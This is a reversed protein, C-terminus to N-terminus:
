PRCSVLRELEPTPPVGLERALVQRFADFRRRAEVINREALHVAILARTASERLPELRVAALAVEIAEGYRGVTTLRTALAELAHLRLQRLREREFLVWDDYWGPLLEGEILSRMPAQIHEIVTEDPPVLARHAASVLQAVDVGVEPCLSLVEDGTVIQYETLRHLRWLATRLCGRAHRESSEPWLIGATEARGSVGRLGLYAILRRTSPPSDLPRGHQELSFGGLLRLRFASESTHAPRPDHHARLGGLASSLSM